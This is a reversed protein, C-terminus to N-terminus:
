KRGTFDCRRKAAHEGLLFIRADQQAFRGVDIGRGLPNNQSIACGEFIIREDDGRTRLTGIVSVIAPSLPSGAQLAHFVRGSDPVFDKIRKLARFAGRTAFFRSGPQRENDDACTRRPHFEAPREGFDCILSQFVIKPSDVANKHQFVHHHRLDISVADGILGSM